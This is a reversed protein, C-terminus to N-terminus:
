RTTLRVIIVPADFWFIFFFVVFSIVNYLDMVNNHPISLIECFIRM